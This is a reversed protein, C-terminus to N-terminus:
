VTKKQINKRGCLRFFLTCCFVIPLRVTPRVANESIDICTKCLEKTLSSPVVSAATLELITSNFACYVVVGGGVGVVVV